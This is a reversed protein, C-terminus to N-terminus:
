KKKKKKKEGKERMKKREGRSTLSLTQRYSAVYKAVISGPLAISLTHTRGGKPTFVATPKATHLPTDGNEHSTKQKQLRDTVNRSHNSHAPPVKVHPRRM